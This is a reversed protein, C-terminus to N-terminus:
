NGLPLLKARKQTCLYSFLEFLSCKPLIKVRNGCLYKAAKSVSGVGVGGRCPRPIGVSWYPAAAGRGDLPPAPTPDTVRAAVSMVSNHERRFMAMKSASPVFTM